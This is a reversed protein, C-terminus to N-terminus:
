DNLNIETNQNTTTPQPGDALPYLEREGSTPQPTRFGRRAGTETQTTKGRPKEVCSQVWSARIPVSVMVVAIGVVSSNLRFTLVPSGIPNSNDRYFLGPFGEVM